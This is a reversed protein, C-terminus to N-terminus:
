PIPHAPPEIWCVYGDPKFEAAIATEGGWDCTAVPACGPPNDSFGMSFSRWCPYKETGSGPGGCYPHEVTDLTEVSPGYHERFWERTGEYFHTYGFIGTPFSACEALARTNVPSSAPCECRPIYIPSPPPPKSPRSGDPYCACGPGEECRYSNSICSDGCPKGTECVACCDDTLSSEDSAVCAFVTLTVMLALAKKV